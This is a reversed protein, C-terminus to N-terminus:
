QSICLNEFVKEEVAHGGALASVTGERLFSRSGATTM